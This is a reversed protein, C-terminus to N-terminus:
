ANPSRLGDALPCRRPARAPGPGPGRRPDVGVGSPGRVPRGARAVNATADRSGNDVVVVRTVRWGEGERPLDALVFPLAAQEDRAPILVALSLM